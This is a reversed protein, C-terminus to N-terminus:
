RNHLRETAALIPLGWCLNNWLLALIDDDIVEDAKYAVTEDDEFAVPATGL